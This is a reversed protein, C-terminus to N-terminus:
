LPVLLPFAQKEPIYAYLYKIYMSVYIYTHMYEHMCKDTDIDINIAHFRGEIYLRTLGGNPNVRVRVHPNLGHPQLTLGRDGPM